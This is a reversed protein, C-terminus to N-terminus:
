KDKLYENIKGLEAGPDIVLCEKDKSIIYTNEQLLGTKIMKIDM